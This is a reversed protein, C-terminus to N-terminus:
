FQVSKLISLIPMGPVTLSPSLIHIHTQPNKINKIHPSSCAFSTTVPSRLLRATQVFSLAHASTTYTCSSRQPLHCPPLHHPPISTFVYVHKDMSREGSQDKKTSAFRVLMADDRWTFHSFRLTSVNGVRAMLCWTMVMFAHAYGAGAMESLLMLRALKMYVTTPLEDKGERNPWLGALKQAAEKRKLGSFFRETSAKFEPSPSVHQSSFCASVASRISNLTACSLLM